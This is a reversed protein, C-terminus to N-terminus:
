FFDDEDDFDFDDIDDIGDIDEYEDFDDFGDEVSEGGLFFTMFEDGDGLFGLSESSFGEPLDAEDLDLFNNEQLFALYDEMNEIGQETMDEEVNEMFQSILGDIVERMESDEKYREDRIKLEEPSFSYLGSTTEDDNWIIFLGYNDINNYVFSRSNERDFHMSLGFPALFPLLAMETDQRSYQEEYKQTNKMSQNIIRNAFNNFMLWKKLSRIDKM